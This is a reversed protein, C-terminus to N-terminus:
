EYRLAESSNLDSINRVPLWSAIIALFFSSFLIKFFINYNFAFPIQDMFYIDSPIKLIEYELQILIIFSSILGGAIGGILGIFGGQLIFINKLLGGHIGQALLIGIQKTKEIIIMTIAAILNILGVLAILGFMLYAPLKQLSIWRFLLEHKEKWTQYYFPYKVDLKINTFNYNNHIFGSIQNESLSLISRADKNSIYVVTNDYEQLGSHFIEKVKLAKILPGSIISNNYSLSQLYVMDGINIDFSLSVGNGIIIEGESIKEIKNNSISKPVYELGEILVGEAKSGIRLLASGNIYPTFTDSSNNILLNINPDFISFSKGLIHSIRGKGEFSSLKYSITEEFGQIISATLMLATVGISLGGIALWSAYSSFSGSGKSFLFRLAFRLSLPIKM